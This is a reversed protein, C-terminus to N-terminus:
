GSTKKCMKNLSDFSSAGIAKKAARRPKIFKFGYAKQPHTINPTTFNQARRIFM